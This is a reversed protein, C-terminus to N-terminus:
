SRVASRGTAGCRRRAGSRGRDGAGGAHPAIGPRRRRLPQRPRPGRRADLRGPRPGLRRPGRRRPEEGAARAATPRPEPLQGDCGGDDSPWRGPAGDARLAGRSRRDPGAAAARHPRRARDGGAQPAAEARGGRRRRPRRGHEGGPPLARRGRPRSRGPDVRPARLRLQPRAGRHAADDRRAAARPGRRALLDQGLGVPRLPVHPPRLRRRRDRGRRRALARAGRDRAGHAAGRQPGDM